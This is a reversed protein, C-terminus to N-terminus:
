EVLYTVVSGIILAIVGWFEKRDVLRIDQKNSINQKVLDTMNNMYIKLSDSQEKNVELLTCKLEQQTKEINLLQFKNEVNIKEVHRLRTEHDDVQEQIGEIKTIIVDENM